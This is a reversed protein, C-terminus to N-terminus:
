KDDQKTASASGETIFKELLQELDEDEINLEKAVSKALQPAATCNLEADCKMVPRKDKGNFDATNM